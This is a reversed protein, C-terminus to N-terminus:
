RAEVRVLKRGVFVAVPSRLVGHMKTGDVFYRRRGDTGIEGIRPVMGMGYQEAPVFRRAGRVQDEARRSVVVFPLVSFRQVTELTRLLEAKTIRRSM